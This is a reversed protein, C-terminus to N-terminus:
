EQKPLLPVEGIIADRVEKNIEPLAQVEPATRTGKLGLLSHSRLIEPTFFSTLL